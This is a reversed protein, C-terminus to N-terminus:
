PLVELGVVQAADSLRKDLTVMTAGAEVAVALHIADLTRLLVQSQLALKGAAESHRGEFSIRQFLGEALHHEFAERAQRAHDTTLEGVKVKRALVVRFEAVTLDSVFLDESGQM